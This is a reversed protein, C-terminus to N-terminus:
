NCFSQNTKAERGLELAKRDSLARCPRWGELTHLAPEVWMEHYVRTRNIGKGVKNSQFSDLVTTFSNATVLSAQEAATSLIERGLQAQLNILIFLQM